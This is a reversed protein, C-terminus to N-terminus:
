DDNMEDNLYGKVPSEETRQTFPVKWGQKVMSLM